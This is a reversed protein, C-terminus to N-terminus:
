AGILQRAEHEWTSGTYFSTVRAIEKEFSALANTGNSLDGQGGMTELTQGVQHALMGGLNGMVGKLRHARSEVGKADRNSMAEKLASLQEPVEALSAAVADRLIDVDDGVVELAERLNVPSSPTAKVDLLPILVKDLEDIRVPKTVYADMGAEVCKLQYEKTAFATMAVIPMHGGLEKEKERIARTADLGDMEPMAVDMLIVDFPQQAQRSAMFSEVAQKGNNALTVAHGAKTLSLKAILQNTPSDEAVLICLSRLTNQAVPAATVSVVPADLQLRATFHFTSGKGVQSEVWIQGGMLKVLQKALALGMGLGGFRRTATTDAQQFPEFIIERRNEPIGIGTDTVRVHLEAEREAKKESAIHVTVSGQETFKVANTVLHVLVQRLRNADGIFRKPVTVDQSLSLELGKDTARPRVIELVRDIPESLEFPKSELGLQGAELESFEIVDDILTILANSSAHATNLYQSQDPSLPTNLLLETMGIIEHLPTRLEHSMNALFDSRAKQATDATEVPKATITQVRELLLKPDYPARLLCDLEAGSPMDSGEGDNVMMVVPIQMTQPDLKLKGCVEFGNMKPLMSDLLILNPKESSAKALCEVGDAALSVGYGAKQLVLQTRLAETRSDEVVLIRTTM